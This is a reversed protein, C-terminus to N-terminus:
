GRLRRLKSIDLDEFTDRIRFMFIGMLFVGMVLDFAVGIEIILPMGFTTTLAALFIGNELVLLGMIQMIAKSRSVMLFAGCLILAIAAALGEEGVQLGGLYTHVASFALVILGTTISVSLASSVTSGARRSVQLRKLLKLLAYPIGIVKTLFVLAAIAYAEPIRHVYAVAVVDAALVASQVAFLVIITSLRKAAALLLLTLFLLVAASNLAKVAALHAVPM